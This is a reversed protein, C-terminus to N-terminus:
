GKLLKLPGTQRTQTERNRSATFVRLEHPAREDLLTTTTISTPPAAGMVDELSLRMRTLRAIEVDYDYSGGLERPILNRPLGGRELNIVTENVSNGSIEETPLGSFFSIVHGVQFCAFDLLQVKTPDYARAVIFRNLKSPM